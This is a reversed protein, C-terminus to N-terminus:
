AVSTRRRKSQFREHGYRVVALVLAFALIGINSDFARRYRPKDDEQFLQAGYIAAINASMIIMAMALSREESDNCTLSMWTINLPHPFSAFIQTWVVGFYRVGRNNIETFIRNLVYGCMHMGVAAITTEGRKNFRDSVWSFAFSVPVQLFLGVAALANSTLSPFGFSRIITPGYTDFGRFPGNNGLTIFIHVWIRWNSFAKKFSALGIHQKKREKNADDLMVRTQLIHLERATFFDHRPIFWSHPNHFADPLCFGLVVGSAMTFAGMIIFLWFWGPYGAVGKMHLIGYAILKASAQGLQNGFFFVMVRKATEKRTYWTSLTWLGGPIYGSETVGLLFRTALYNSYNTQFAQFTSVSGFLFLQLTLWKGPGVRYLIMNSPIEFLVIGLSLLQQGVNFQFQTIGVDEMFTDTIANAINGRDLQLCFFGLTLLPMIILDLKWKAKREEEVTWDVQLVSRKADSDDQAVSADPESVTLEKTAM